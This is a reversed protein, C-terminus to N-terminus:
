GSSTMQSPAPVCLLRSTRAQSSPEPLGSRWRRGAARHVQVSNPRRWRAYKFFCSIASRHRECSASTLSKLRVAFFPKSRFLVRASRRPIWAPLQSVFPSLFGTMDDPRCRSRRLFRWDPRSCVAAPRVCCRSSAAWPRGRAHPASQRTGARWRGVLRCGGATRLPHVLLHQM